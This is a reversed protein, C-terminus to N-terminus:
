EVISFGCHQLMPWNFQSCSGGMCHSHLVLTIQGRTNLSRMFGQIFNVSDFVDSQITARVVEEYSFVIGHRLYAADLQDKPDSMVGIQACDSNTNEFLYDDDETPAWVVVGNLDFRPPPYARFCCDDSVLTTESM